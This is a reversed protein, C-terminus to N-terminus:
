LVEAHQALWKKGLEIHSPDIEVDSQLGIEVQCRLAGAAVSLKWSETTWFGDYRSNIEAILRWFDAVLTRANQIDLRDEPEFTHVDAAVLYTFKFLISKPSM